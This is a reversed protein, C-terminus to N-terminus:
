VGRKNLGLAIESVMADVVAAKKTEFSRRMYATPGVHGVVRKQKGRGKVLKHGYEVWAAYYATNILHVELAFPDIKRPKIIKFARKLNGGRHSYRANGNSKRKRTVNGGVPANAEATQLMTTMSRKMGVVLMRRRIDAELKDLRACVEDLGGIKMLVTNDRYILVEHAM